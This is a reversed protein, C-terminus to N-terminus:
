ANGNKDIELVLAKYEVKTNQEKEIAAQFIKINRDCNEIGKLLADKSYKPKLM